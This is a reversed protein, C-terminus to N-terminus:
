RALVLRQLKQEIQDARFRRIRLGRDFRNEARRGRLFHDLPQFFQDRAVRAQFARERGM